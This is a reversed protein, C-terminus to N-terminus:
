HAIFRDPRVKVICTAADIKPTGSLSVMAFALRSEHDMSIMSGDLIHRTSM